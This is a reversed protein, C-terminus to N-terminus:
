ADPCGCQLSEFGRRDSLSITLTKSSFNQLSASKRPEVATDVLGPSISLFLLGEKKYKVAYKAIALNLAAKSASYAVNFEFEVALTLDVDGAGSSITMIKKEQGARLLPLFINITHLVGVVNVDFKLHFYTHAMQCHVSFTQIISVFGIMVDQIEKAKEETSTCLDSRQEILLIYSDYKSIM